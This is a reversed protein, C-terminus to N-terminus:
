LGASLFGLPPGFLGAFIETVKAIATGLAQIAEVEDANLGDADGGECVQSFSGPGAEVTCTAFLGGDVRITTTGSATETAQDFDLTGDLTVVEGGHEFRFSIRLSVTTETLTIREFNRIHIDHSNVDLAVNQTISVSTTSGSVDVTGTFRLTDPSAAGNTIYGATTIRASSASVSALTVTYDVYTPAGGSGAVTVHLTSTSGSSEDKLDVYGVEVLPDAPFGTLPNVAYLIFRVGTAPAGTRATPEYAFNTTNWEFTKGVVEPPFIATAATGSLSPVFQSMRRASEIRGVYPRLATHESLPNAATALALSKSFAPAALTPGIDPSLASFSELVATDFLMDLSALQATTVQPDALSKPGISDTCAATLVGLLLGARLLSRM